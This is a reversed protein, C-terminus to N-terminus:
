IAPTDFSMVFSPFIVRFANRAEAAANAEAEAKALFGSSIRAINNWQPDQM